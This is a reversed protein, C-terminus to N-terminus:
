QSCQASDLGMYLFIESEKFLARKEQSECIWGLSGYKEIVRWPQSEFYFHTDPRIPSYTM